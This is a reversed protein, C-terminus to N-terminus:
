TFSHFTPNLAGRRMFSFVRIRENPISFDSNVRSAGPCSTEEPPDKAKTGDFKGGRRSRVGDSRCSTASEFRLSPYSEPNALATSFMASM